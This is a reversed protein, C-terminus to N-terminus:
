VLSRGFFPYHTNDLCALEKRPLLIELSDSASSALRNEHQCLASISVEVLNSNMKVLVVAAWEFSKLVIADIFLDYSVM